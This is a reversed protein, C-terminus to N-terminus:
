RDQKNIHFINNNQFLREFWNRNNIQEFIPLLIADINRQQVPKESAGMINDEWGDHSISQKKGNKDTVDNYRDRLGVIHGFEHPSDAAIPRWVGNYNNERVFSRKINEIEIYNAYSEDKSNKRNKGLGVKVKFNVAYEKGNNNYTWNNNWTSNIENKIQESLRTLEKSSYQKSSLYINAYITVTKNEHNVAVRAKKGNNDIYKIPNGNGYAYPSIWYNEESLPDISNFAGDLRQFRAESDIYNIGFDKQSEKGNYLYPNTSAALASNSHREGYPMYDNQELVTGSSNTVLRTSGLHDTVFYRAEYGSSTKYTRGGASAVSELTINSNSRNYKFSGIYDYGVGSANITKIKTGDALYTYTAKVTSGQKITIPLNLFNYSSVLLNNTADTTINGNADYIYGNRRNGTYAFTSTSPAGNVYRTMSKINSNKDYSIAKETFKDSHTSGIFHDAGLLRSMKDYSFKYTNVSQGKYAWAWESINGSYSPAAGDYYKLSNDFLVETGKKVTQATKWGQINYALSETVTGGNCSKGTLRGVSDYTYNVSSSVGGITATEALLRGRRDYSFTRDLTETTSGHTYTEKSATINGVFDYKDSTRHISGDPYKETTQIVRGRYDYHFSREVYGSVTYNDGLVGIKEFTKFGKLRSDRDAAASIGTIAVFSAMASPASDYTYEAVSVNSANNYLTTLASTTYATTSVTGTFPAIMTKEPREFADYKYLIAKGAARLNGDQYIVNHGGLDYGYYEVAKGPLQKKVILDNTYTYVYCLDNVTASAITSNSATLGKAAEPPVVCVLRFSNDYVYYTDAYDNDAIKRRELIVNDQKDTFTIIQGGDEDTSTNRFLTSASYYGGAAVSGSSFSLKLVENSLNLGYDYSIYRGAGAQYASGSKYTRKVRGLPSNEYEHLTFAYPSDASGYVTFNSSSLPASQAAANTTAAAYPLYERVKDNFAADHYVPLVLSKGDPAAGVQVTHTLLGLGDYYAVDDIASGKQPSTYIRTRIYNKSTSIGINAKDPGAAFCPASAIALAAALLINIHTKM